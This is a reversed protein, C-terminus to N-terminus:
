AQLVLGVGKYKDARMSQDGSFLVFLDPRTKEKYYADRTPHASARLADNTDNVEM